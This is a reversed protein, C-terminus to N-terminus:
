QGDGEVDIAGTTSWVPEDVAGAVHGVARALEARRRDVEAAASERGLEVDRLNKAADILSLFSGGGSEVAARAARVQDAAAPFLRNRYLHLVHRAEHLREVAQRVASRVDDELARRKAEATLARARAEARAAAVRDRWLPVNVRVGTMWRHPEEAWMSNYSFMLEFAPYGQLGALSTEARRALIEADTAAIEPRAAVAEDELRTALEEEGGMPPLDDLALVSPPPPLAARPARHLLANIAAILVRRRSELEVRDHALHALEVEAQLPDQQSLLGAGYQATAVRKFDELLSVHHANIELARDLLFYDDFMTAASLALDLRLTEYDHGLAEAERAAGEGRLRLTGPWPLRQSVDFTQGYPVRSSGISLPAFSYGLMPDDLTRMQEPRARAAEWAQRAAELSQNRRLVADVLAQRELPESSPFLVEAAGADAPPRDVAAAPPVATEVEPPGVRDAAVMPPAAEAGALPAKSACGAVVVVTMLVAGCTRTARDM